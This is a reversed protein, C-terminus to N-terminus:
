RSFRPSGTVAGRIAIVSKDLKVAINQVMQPDFVGAISDRLSNESVSKLLGRSVPLGLEERLFGVIPGSMGIETRVLSTIETASATEGTRVLYAQRTGRLFRAV